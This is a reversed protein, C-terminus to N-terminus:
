NKGPIMLIVGTNIQKKVLNSSDAVKLKSNNKKIINYKILEEVTLNLRYNKNFYSVINKLSDNKIVKYEFPWKSIKVVDTTPDVAKKNPTGETTATTGENNVPTPLNTGKTGKTVVTPKIPDQKSEGGIFFYGIGVLLAM